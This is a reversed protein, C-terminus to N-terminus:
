ALVLTIEAIDPPLNASPLVVSGGRVITVPVRVKRIDEASAEPPFNFIGPYEPNYYFSESDMLYKPVTSM